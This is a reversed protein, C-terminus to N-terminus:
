ACARTCSHVHSHASTCEVPNQTGQFIECVQELYGHHSAAAMTSAYWILAGAPNGTPTESQDDDVERVQMDTGARTQIRTCMCMGLRVTALRVIEQDDDKLLDLVFPIM